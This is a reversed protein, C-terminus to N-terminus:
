ITRVPCLTLWLKQSQINEQQHILSDLVMNLKIIYLFSAPMVGVHATHTDISTNPQFPPKHTWPGMRQCLINAYLAYPFNKSGKMESVPAEGVSGM